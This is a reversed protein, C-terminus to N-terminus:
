GNSGGKPKGKERMREVLEDLTSSVDPIPKSSRLDNTGLWRIFPPNVKESKIEQGNKYITKKNGQISVAWQDNKQKNDMPAEKRNLDEGTSRRRCKM